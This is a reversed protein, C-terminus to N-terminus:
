KGTRSQHFRENIVFRKVWVFLPTNLKGRKGKAADESTLILLCSFWGGLDVPPKNFFLFCKGDFMTPKCVTNYFQPKMVRERTDQFTSPRHSIVSNVGLGMYILSLQFLSVERQREALSQTLRRGSSFFCFEESMQVRRSRNRRVCHIWLSWHRLYVEWCNLYVLSSPEGEITM